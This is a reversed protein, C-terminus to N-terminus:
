QPTAPVNVAFVIRQGDRSINGLNASQPGPLKFLVKPAAGKFVPTTGIDASMVALDDSGPEVFQRYLLEKGDARWLLMGSAAGDKSVQWKGDGPMGTSADFARVFIETRDPDLETSLYAIFRGDPSFRPSNTFFEERSFEIAKRALPDSGTLPVILLVGGSACALFKGDPSIDTLSMGAGATYRFLLEEGGSGDSSIRYVGTYGDRNSTYLFYKGDPTWVPSFFSGTIPTGKGTAIDFIWIDRTGSALDSKAVVLRKGDPSFVPGNYIGPSGIKNVIKGQRDFVTIQQLQREKPPSALVLFREGDRSIDRVSVPPVGPPQFLLKPRAAAFAPTSRIESVMVFGDRDVYYLEKGDGRWSAGRGNGDSVQRDGASGDIPRVLVVGGSIYSLFRGDPSFRAGTMRTTSRYVEKPDREGAGDAPLIYLAGSTQDSKAFDPKAFALFRGDSSWDSLNLGIGPNKYLLEEPGEGTAARRYIGENGSRNEVYALQRGDPSWVLSQSQVFEGKVSTTIRTTKGTSIELVWADANEAEPDEKIVAVRTRDPSMIASDYLARGGATGAVNGARDYFTIVRADNEFDKAIQKAKAAAKAKAKENDATSQGLGRIPLFLLAASLAATGFVVVIRCSNQM